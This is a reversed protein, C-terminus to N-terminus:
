ISLKVLLLRLASLMFQVFIEAIVLSFQWTSIENLTINKALKELSTM